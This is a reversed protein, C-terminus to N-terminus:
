LPQLDGIQELADRAMREKDQVTLRPDSAKIQQLWALAMCLKRNAFRRSERPYCRPCVGLVNHRCRRRVQIVLCLNRALPIRVPRLM